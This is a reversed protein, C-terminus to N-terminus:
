QFPDAYPEITWTFTTTGIPGSADAATVTVTSTGVTTPAGTILGTAPDISLGAPLGTADYSLQGGDSATAQIQLSTPIDASGSQDGPNTVSVVAGGPAPTPNTGTSGAGCAWSKLTRSYLPPTSPTQIDVGLLKGEASFQGFDAKWTCAGPAASFDLSNSVNLTVSALSDEGIGAKVGVGVSADATAVARATLSAQPSSFSVSPLWALVPPVGVTQAGADVHISESSGLRLGAEFKASIQGYIAATVPIPGILGDEAFDVECSGDSYLGVLYNLGVKANFGVQAQIGTKLHLGLIDHTAWGGSFTVGSITRTLPPAGAGGCSATVDNPNLASDQGPAPILPINFEAVPVVSFVSVPTLGIQTRSGKGSISTVTSLVGRPVTTSPALSLISGVQLGAPESSLTVSSPHTPDGGVSSVTAHASIVGPNVITGWAISLSSRLGARVQVSVTRKVPYIRAGAKIAGHSRASTVNSLRVTYRGPRLRRLTLHHDPVQRRLGPGHVVATPSQGQPLGAVKIVLTGSRTKLKAAAAPTAALMLFLTGVLGITTALAARRMAM